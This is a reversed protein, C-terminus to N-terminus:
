KQEQPQAPTPHPSAVEDSVEPMEAREARETKEARESIEARETKEARESIEAGETKEAIESIETEETLRRELEAIRKEQEITHLYLEELKEQLQITLTTLDIGGAEDIDAQSMVGPLHHERQVFDEVEGLPIPEYDDAFVYDAAALNATTKIRGTMVGDDVYLRYQPDGTPLTGIGIRGHRDIRMSEAWGQGNVHRMFKIKGGASQEAAGAIFTLEGPRSAHADGYLELTAGNDSTTNAHLTLPGNSASFRRGDLSGSLRVDKDILVDGGSFRGAYSSSNLSHGHIATGTSVQGYIGTGYSVNAHVGWIQYGGNVNVKIGYDYAGNSKDIVIGDRGSNATIRLQQSSNANNAGLAIPTTTYNLGGTTFQGLTTSYLAAWLLGFFFLRKM